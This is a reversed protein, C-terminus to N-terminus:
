SPVFITQLYRVFREQYEQPPVCSVQKSDYIVSKSLHESMKKINYDTLTDIIGIYFVENQTLAQIGGYFQQFCNYHSPVVETPPVLPKEGTHIGLLLSYDNINLKAMMQSDITAQSVIAQFIESKIPLKRNFDNDKLAAGAARLEMPTSRNVTSGKLDYTHHVPLKNVFANCMVVFIVKTSGRILAHLGCFKTVLTNPNNMIHSFYVPLIRKLTTAEVNPITKLVYKNDHSVFFFSGSRGSSSMEFLSTLHGYLLAAKLQTLGLSALYETDSIGYRMRLARFVAPAYDNFLVDSDKGSFKRISQGRHGDKSTLTGSLCNYCVKVGFEKEDVEKLYDKNKCAVEIGNMIQTIQVWQPHGFSIVRSRSITNYKDFRESQAQLVDAIGITGTLARSFEECDIDGSHNTDIESFLAFSFSEITQNRPIQLTIASSILRLGELFQQYNISNRRKTDFMKFLYHIRDDVDGRLLVRCGQLYEFFRITSKNLCDFLQYLAKTLDKEGSMMPGLSVIFEGESIGGDLNADVVCYQQFLKWCEDHSFPFVVKKTGLARYVMSAANALFVALLHKISEENSVNNLLFIRGDDACVRIDDGKGWVLMVEDLPMSVARLANMEAIDDPRFIISFAFNEEIRLVVPRDVTSVSGGSIQQALTCEIDLPLLSLAYLVDSPQYARFMAEDRLELQGFTKRWVLEIAKLFQAGDEGEAALFITGTATHMDMVTRLMPEDAFSRTPFHVEKRRQVATISRIPFECALSGDDNCGVIHTSLLELKCRIPRKSDVVHCSM